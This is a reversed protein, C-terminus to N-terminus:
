FSVDGRFPGDPVKALGNTKHCKPSSEPSWAMKVSKEVKKMIKENKKKQTTSLFTDRAETFRVTRLM